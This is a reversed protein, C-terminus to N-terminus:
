NYLRIRGPILGSKRGPYFLDTEDADSVPNVPGFRSVAAARGNVGYATKRPYVPQEAIGAADGIKRKFQLASGYGYVM